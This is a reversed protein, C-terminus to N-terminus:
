TNPLCSFSPGQTYLANSINSLVKPPIKAQMTCPPLSAGNPSLIARLLQFTLLSCNRSGQFFNSPSYTYPTSFFLPIIRTNRKTPLKQGQSVSSCTSRQRKEVSPRKALLTPQQLCSLLAAVDTILWLFSLPFKMSFHFINM